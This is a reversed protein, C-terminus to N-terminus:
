VEGAELLGFPEGFSLTSIIDAAMLYWWKMADVSGKQGEKKLKAIALDVRERVVSEYNTRLYSKAFPRAFLKRRERHDDPNIMTFIGPHVKYVLKQYFDSKLFGSGTRYISQFADPEAVSLENPSIRVISGYTQHLQHIYAIRQGSMVKFKLPLNTFSALLPGPVSRLPTASATYLSQPLSYNHHYPILPQLYQCQRHPLSM